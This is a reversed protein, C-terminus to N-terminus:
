SYPSASVRLLCTQRCNDSSVKETIVSSFYIGGPLIGRIRLYAKSVKSVCGLRVNKKSTFTLLSDGCTLAPISHMKHM